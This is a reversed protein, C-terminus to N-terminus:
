DYQITVGSDSGLKGVVQGKLLLVTKLNPCDHCDVINIKPCGRLDLASILTGHCDLYRLVPNSLKLSSLPNNNCHLEDLSDLGSCDLHQIKNYSLQLLTLAKFGSLDVSELENYDLGLYDLHPLPRATLKSIHNGCLYVHALLGNTSLDVSTLRGAVPENQWTGEAHLYSLNTFFSMGELSAIGDTNLEIRSIQQAEPSSLRGNKDTDYNWLIWARFGEDPIFIDQSYPPNDPTSVALTSFSTEPSKVDLGSGNDAYAYFIYCTSPELGHATACFGQGEVKAALNCSFTGDESRLSFGASVIGEVPSATANLVAGGESISTVSVDQIRPKKMAGPEPLSHSCSTTAAFACLLVSILSARNM